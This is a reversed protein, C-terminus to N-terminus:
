IADVVKRLQETAHYYAEFFTNLEDMSATGSEHKARHVRSFVGCDVGTARSLATIVEQQLVPPEKGLLTIIGRFLPIYATVSRFLAESLLTREGRSSIYGQRLGILKTKIERECQHRLDKLDIALDQFLDAGHVTSHILKFNLFEVPFVDLSEAIYAPTMILPAAVRHKGYKKGLPALLALVKLDMEKLVLVSNVDSRKEDYDDTLATGTVQISHIAPEFRSLVEDLFPRIKKAASPKLDQLRVEPM